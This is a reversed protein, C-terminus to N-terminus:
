VVLGYINQDLALGYVQWTQYSTEWQSQRRGIEKEKRKRIKM